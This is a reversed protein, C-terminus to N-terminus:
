RLSCVTLQKILFSLSVSFSHPMCLRGSQVQASNWKLIMKYIIWDQKKKEVTITTEKCWCRWIHSEDTFHWQFLHSNAVKVCLEICVFASYLLLQTNKVGARYLSCFPKCFTTIVFSDHSHKCCAVLEQVRQPGLLLGRSCFPLQNFGLPKTQVPSRIKVRTWLIFETNKCSGSMIVIWPSM